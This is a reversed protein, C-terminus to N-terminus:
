QPTISISYEYDVDCSGEAMKFEGARTLQSSGPATGLACEEKDELWCGLDEEYIFAFSFTKTADKSGGPDLEYTVINAAIILGDKLAIDVTESIEPNSNTEFRGLQVLVTESEKLIEAQSVVSERKVITINTYIDAEGSTGDGECSKLATIKDVSISLSAMKPGDPEPTDKIICGPLSLSIILLLAAVKSIFNM